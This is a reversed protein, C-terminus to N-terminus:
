VPSTTNSNDAVVSEEEEQHSFPLHSLGLPPLKPWKEQRRWDEKELEEPIGLCVERSCCSFMRTPEGEVEALEVPDNRSAVSWKTKHETQQRGM